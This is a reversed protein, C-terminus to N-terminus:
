DCWQYQLGYSADDTEEQLYDYGEESYVTFGAKKHTLLSSINKKDVCSRITFAGQKKMLDVVETLLQVAFGKRRYEPHTELAELFYFNNSSIEFLM